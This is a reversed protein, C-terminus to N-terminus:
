LRGFFSTRGSRCSQIRPRGRYPHNRVEAASAHLSRMGITGCRRSLHSIVCTVTYSNSSTYSCICKCVPFLGALTAVSGGHRHQALDHHIGPLTTVEAFNHLFGQNLQLAPATKAPAILGPSPGKNSEKKAATAASDKDNDSKPTPTTSQQTKDRNDVSALTASVATISPAQRPKRVFPKVPFAAPAAVNNGAGPNPVANNAASTNNPEVSSGAVDSSGPTNPGPQDSSAATNAPVTAPSSPATKKNSDEPRVLPVASVNGSSGRLKIFGFLAGGAVILALVTLVIPNISTIRAFFAARPDFEARTEHVLDWIDPPEHLTMAGRNDGTPAVDSDSVADFTEVQELPASPGDSALPRPIQAKIPASM